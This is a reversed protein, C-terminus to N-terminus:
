CATKRSRPSIGPTTTPTHWPMRPEGYRQYTIQSVLGTTSVPGPLIPTPRIAAQRMTENLTERTVRNLSDYSYGISFRGQNSRTVLNDQGYTVGYAHEGGSTFNTQGTWRNYNDYSYEARVTNYGNTRSGVLRGLLDYTYETTNGALYDTLRVLQDQNNYVYAAANGNESTKATM